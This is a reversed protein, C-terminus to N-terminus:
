FPLDSDVFDLSDPIDDPVNECDYGYEDRLPKVKSLLIPDKQALIKCRRRKHPTLRAVELLLKALKRVEGSGHQTLVELRAINKPSIHSQNLFNDLEDLCDIRDREERPLRQCDKCIHDRHGRGSFKENRRYRDCIRCYHPM